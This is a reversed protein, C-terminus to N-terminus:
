PKGSKAKEQAAPGGFLFGYPNQSVLREVVDAASPMEQPRIGLNRIPLCGSIKASDRFARFMSAYNKTTSLVMPVDSGWLLKDKLKLPTWGPRRRLVAKDFHGVEDLALLMQFARRAHKKEFEYASLDAYTNPYLKLLCVLGWTWTNYYRTNRAM